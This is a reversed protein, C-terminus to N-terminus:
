NSKREAAAFNYNEHVFNNNIKPDDKRMGKNFRTLNKRTKKKDYIKKRHQSVNSKNNNWNKVNVQIKFRNYNEVHASPSETKQYQQSM